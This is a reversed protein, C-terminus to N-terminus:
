VRTLYKSDVWGILKGQQILYWKSNGIQSYYGWCQVEENQYLIKEVNNFTLLAPVYRCNLAVANVRYKGTLNNDFSKAAAVAPKNRLYDNVKSQAEDYNYGEATLRLKRDEGNGYKGAIIDLVLAATVEKKEAPAPAPTTTAEEKKKEALKANVAAQVAEYNYGEKTLKNKRVAGNGYKGAIVAEVIEDTVEKPEPKEEKPAEVPETEDFVAGFYTDLDVNGKIGNVRGKESTQHFLCPVTPQGAWYAFWFAAGSPIGSGKYYYNNYYDYNAYVGYRFGADEVAKCFAKTMATCLKADITVGKNKAYNVSDYELDFFIITSKPLGAEVCTKAAFEGERKADEETLAYSFYYAGPIKLGASRAGLIYTKFKNDVTGKGYGIRPIVFEIGSKSVKAWDIDGQFCSVDIGKIGSM